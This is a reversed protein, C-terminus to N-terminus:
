DFIVEIINNDNDFRYYCETRGYNVIICGNGQRTSFQSIGQKALDAQITNLQNENM